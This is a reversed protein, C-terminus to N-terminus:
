AAQAGARSDARDRRPGPANRNTAALTAILGKWADASDPHSTLVQRYITYAQDTNNRLLYIDALQLELSVGPQRGAAIELKEARELMGQAVDFQNAQQYIAALEVLFGPDGLATEYAAAPMNKVDSIAQTDQGLEHHASVLGMWASVNAPDAVVVQLYLAAAQPFRKAEMLIGAYQM